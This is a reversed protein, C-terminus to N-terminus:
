LIAKYNTELINWHQIFIGIMKFWGSEFRVLSLQGECRVQKSQSDVQKHSDLLIRSDKNLPEQVEQVEQLFILTLM